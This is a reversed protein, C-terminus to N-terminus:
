GHGDGCNGWCRAPRTERTGSPPPVLVVGTCAVMRGHMCADVGALYEIASSLVNCVLMCCTDHTDCARRNSRRGLKRRQAVVVAAAVVVVVVVLVLSLARRRVTGFSILQYASM